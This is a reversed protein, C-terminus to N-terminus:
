ERKRSSRFPKKRWAKQSERTLAAMAGAAKVLWNAPRESLHSLIADAAGPTALHVNAVECGMLRALKVEVARGLSKIEIKDTDPALRRVIWGNDTHLFPDRSRISAHLLYELGGRSRRPPGGSNAWLAASPVVAKAERAVREGNWQGIAVFRQRGLSGKGVDERLRVQVKTTGTSFARELAKRCSSPVGRAATGKEPLKKKWFSGPRILDRLVKKGIHAHHEAFLIPHGGERLGATYGDLLAKALDEARAVLKAEEYALSASTALRVLDNTYPLTAAEDFDNVGWALRGEADRWTGFNEFHLDGVATVRPADFLDPLATPWMVAWAYYTARFFPFPADSMAEHKKDLDDEVVTTQERLWTEYRDTIDHISRPDPQDNRTM